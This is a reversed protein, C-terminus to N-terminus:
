SGDDEEKELILNSLMGPAAEVVDQFYMLGLNRQGELFFGNSNGTFTTHFLKSDAFLRKFFRKGPKSGLIFKIDELEQKRQDETKKAKKDVHEQNSADHQAM